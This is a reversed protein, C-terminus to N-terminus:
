GAAVTAIEWSDQQKPSALNDAFRFQYTSNPSLAYHIVMFRYQGFILDPSGLPQASATSGAATKSYEGQPAAGGPLDAEVYLWLFDDSRISLRDAPTEHGDPGQTAHDIRVYSVSAQPRQPRPAPKKVAPKKKPSSKKKAAKVAKMKTPKSKKAVVKKAAPKKAPKSKKPASKKAPKSKKKAM